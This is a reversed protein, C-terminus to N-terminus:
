CLYSYAHDTTAGLSNKLLVLADHTHLLYLRRIARELDNAKSEVIM